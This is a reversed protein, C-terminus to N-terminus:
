SRWVRRAACAQDFAGLEVMQAEQAEPALEEWSPLEGFGALLVFYKM